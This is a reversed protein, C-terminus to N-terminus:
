LGLEQCLKERFSSNFAQNYLVDGYDLYPLIFTKYITILTARSLLNRLKHLIGMAKNVKALANNLHDEFTLKSDLIVGLRKQLM